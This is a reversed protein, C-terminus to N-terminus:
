PDRVDRFVKNRQRMVADHLDAPEVRSAGRLLCRKIANRAIQEVDSYAMGEMASVMKPIALGDVGVHLLLKGLLETIQSKTPKPFYVVDDFRRWLATDLMNEHNTAAIIIAEGKYRDLMQLFSNIVRKLEGHENEDERSKGIADFEDFFLVMPRLRAFDFVKKLNSATQGLYSSIVADFRVLAIPLYMQTALVEAAVTKGCGPPGYFLLRSVPKLGHARLLESRRNEDVARELAEEVMADLVLTAPNRAPIWWEVLFTGLEKDRPLEAQPAEVPTLVSLSRAEQSSLIRELESALRQHDKKREEVILSRVTKYFAESDGRVFAGVMSQLIEGTTVM